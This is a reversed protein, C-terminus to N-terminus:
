FIIKNIKGILQKCNKNISKETKELILKKRKFAEKGVYKLNILVNYKAASFSSSLFLIACSVDTLLNMNARDLLKPIINFANNSLKAIQEPVAACLKLARDIKPKGLKEKRNLECVNMLQTYVKADETVLKELSKKISELKKIYANIVKENRKKDVSFNCVMILLAVGNLATVASSSGGGPVPKGSALENIYKKLTFSTYDKM